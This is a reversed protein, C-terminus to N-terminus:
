PKPKPDRKQLLERQLADEAKTGAQGIESLMDRAAVGILALGGLSAIGGLIMVVNPGAAGPPAPDPKKREVDREYRIRDSSKYVGAGMAVLLGGFLLIAGWVSRGRISM